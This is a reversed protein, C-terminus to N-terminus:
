PQMKICIQGKQQRILVSSPYNQPFFTPTNQLQTYVAHRRFICRVVTTWGHIVDPLTLAGCTESDVTLLGIMM